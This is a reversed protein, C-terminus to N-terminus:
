PTGNFDEAFPLPSFRAIVIVVSTPGGAIECYPWQQRCRLFQSHFRNQGRCVAGTKMLLKTFVSCRSRPVGPAFVLDAVEGLRQRKGDTDLPPNRIEAERETIRERTLSAVIQTLGHFDICEFSWQDFCKGVPQCAECSHMLTCLHRNRYARLATSATLLKAGQSNPTKRLLLLSSHTTRTM